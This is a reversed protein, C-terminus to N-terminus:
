RASECYFSKILDNNFKPFLWALQLMIMMLHEYVQDLFIGNLFAQFAGGGGLFFIYIIFYYYCYYAPKRKIFKNNLWDNYHFLFKHYELPKYKAKNNLHNEKLIQVIKKWEFIYILLGLRIKM